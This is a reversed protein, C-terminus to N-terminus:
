VFKYIVPARSIEEIIEFMAIIKEDNENRYVKFHIEALQIGNLLQLLQEYNIIKHIKIRLCDGNAILKWFPEVYFHLDEDLECIMENDLFWVINKNKNRIYEVAEKLLTVEFLAHKGGICIISSDHIKVTQTDDDDIKNLFEHLNKLEIDYLNTM